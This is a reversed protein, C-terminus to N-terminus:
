KIEVSVNSVNFITVINDTYFLLWYMINDAWWHVLSKFFVWYVISLFVGYM